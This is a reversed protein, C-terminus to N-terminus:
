SSIKRPVLFNLNIFLSFSYLPLSRTLPASTYTDPSFNHSKDEVHDLSRIKTRPNIELCFCNFRLYTNSPLKKASIGLEMSKEDSLWLFNVRPPFINCSPHLVLEVRKVTLISFAVLILSIRVRLWCFLKEGVEAQNSIICRRWRRLWWYAVLNRNYYFLIFNAIRLLIFGGVVVNSRPEHLVMISCNTITTLCQVDWQVLLVEERFTSM